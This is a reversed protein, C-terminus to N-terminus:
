PHGATQLRNEMLRIGPAPLPMQTHNEWRQYIPRLFLDSHRTRILRAAPIERWEEKSALNWDDRQRSIRRKYPLHQNARESSAAEGHFAKEM